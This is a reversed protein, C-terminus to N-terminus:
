LSQGLRAQLRERFQRGVRIEQGGRLVAVYDGHADQRLKGVLDINVMASRHVRVFQFGRRLM